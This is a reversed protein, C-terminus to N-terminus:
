ANQLLPERLLRLSSESIRGPSLHARKEWPCQLKDGKESGWLGWSQCNRTPRYLWGPTWTGVTNGRQTCRGLEMVQSKSPEVQAETDSVGQRGEQSPRSRGLSM